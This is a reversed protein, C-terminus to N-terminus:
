MLVFRLKAEELLDLDSISLNNIKKTEKSSLHDITGFAEPKM